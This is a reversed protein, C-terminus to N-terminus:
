RVSSLSLAAMESGQRHEGSVLCHPLLQDQVEFPPVVRALLPHTGKQGTEEMGYSLLSDKGTAEVGHALPTRSRVRGKELDGDRVRRKWQHLPRPGTDGDM